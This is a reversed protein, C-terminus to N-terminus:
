RKLGFGIPFGGVPVPPRGQFPIEGFVARVMATEAGPYLTQNVWAQREPTLKFQARASVAPVVAALLLALTLFRNHM